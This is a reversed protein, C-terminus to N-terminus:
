TMKTLYDRLENKEAFSMRSINLLVNNDRSLLTKKLFLENGNQFEFYINKLDFRNIRGKTSYAILQSKTLIIRVFHNVDQEVRSLGIIMAIIPLGLVLFLMMIIMLIPYEKPFSTYHHLYYMLSFLLGGVIILVIAPVSSEKLPKYVKVIDIYGKDLFFLVLTRFFVSAYLGLFFIKRNDFYYSLIIFPILVIFGKKWDYLVRYLKDRLDM